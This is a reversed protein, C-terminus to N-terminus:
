TNAVAPTSSMRPQSTCHSLLTPSASDTLPSARKAIAPHLKLTFSHPSTSPPAAPFM